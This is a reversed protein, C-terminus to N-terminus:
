RLKPPEGKLSASGEVVIGDPYEQIVTGMYRTKQVMATIRDTESMRCFRHSGCRDGSGEVTVVSPESHSQYALIGLKRICAMTAECDIITSCNTIRGPGKALATQLIARHLISQDGPPSLGGDLRDVPEVRQRM